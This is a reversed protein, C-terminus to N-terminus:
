ELRSLGDDSNADLLMNMHIIVWRVKFGNNVRILWNEDCELTVIRM